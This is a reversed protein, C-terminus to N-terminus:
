AAEGAMEGATEGAAGADAAADAAGKSEDGGSDEILENVAESIALTEPRLKRRYVALFADMQPRLTAMMERNLSLAAQASGACM